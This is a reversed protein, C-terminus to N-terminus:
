NDSIIDDIQDGDAKLKFMLQNERSVQTDDLNLVYSSHMTKM